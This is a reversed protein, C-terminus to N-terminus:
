SKHDFRKFRFEYTQYPMEYTVENRQIRINIGQHKMSNNNKCFSIINMECFGTSDTALEM